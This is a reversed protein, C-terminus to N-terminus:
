APKLESFPFVYFYPYQRSLQGPTVSPLSAKHGLIKTFYKYQFPNAGWESKFRALGNQNPWTGGFNLVSLGRESFSRIAEYIILTQPHKDRYEPSLGTMYYEAMRDHLFFLVGAAIAPGDKAIWLEITKAPLHRTVAGWFARPKPLGHKTEMDSRHMEYFSAFDEPRDAMGIQFQHSKAKRLARRKHSAMLCLMQQDISENENPDPLNLYFATRIDNFDPRIIDRYSLEMPDGPRTILNVSLAGMEEGVRLIESILIQLLKLRETGTRDSVMGGITGFFPLSNLVPGLPGEAAAYPIAAALKGRELLGLVRVPVGLTEELIGIWFPSHYLMAGADSAALDAYRPDDWAIERETM